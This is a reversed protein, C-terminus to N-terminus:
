GPPGHRIASAGFSTAPVTDMKKYIIQRALDRSQAAVAM